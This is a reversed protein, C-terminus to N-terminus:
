KCSKRILENIEKKSIERYLARLVVDPSFVNQANIFGSNPEGYDYVLTINATQSAATSVDARIKNGNDIGIYDSVHTTRTGDGSISTPKRDQTDEIIKGNSIRFLDFGTAVYPKGTSPNGFLPGTNTGRNTWRILVKDGKAFVDDHV